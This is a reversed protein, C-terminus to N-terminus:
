CRLLLDKVRCSSRTQLVAISADHIAYATTTPSANATAAAASWRTVVGMSCAPAARASVSKTVRERSAAHIPSLESSRQRM